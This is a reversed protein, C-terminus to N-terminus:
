GHANLLETFTSFSETLGVKNDITSLNHSRSLERNMKCFYLIGGLFCITGFPLTLTLTSLKLSLIFTQSKNFTKLCCFHSFHILYRVVASFELCVAHKYNKEEVTTKKSGYRQLYWSDVTVEIM